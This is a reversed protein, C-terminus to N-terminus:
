APRPPPAAWTSRSPTPSASRTACRRPASWAPPRAPNWCASAPAAARRGVDFLGGTSQVILFNGGFGADGLHAEMETSIPAARAPRCLRQGRRDLHARVRPIGPEARAVRHRLAAPIRQEVIAKARQEHAPNRYSHLFLIAIAQVGQRSRRARASDAGAGRRAPDAGHGARGDAGHDRLAPRPRDAARAERLVPQLVGAPQRPRDRLHRPLGAHDAARLARRQAGPHHQDRGHHRAPVAAGCRFRSGAKGVGNEIGTVLRQPTTLTKGLRLAGTTEDFAAVDTFTGGVDASLRIASDRLPANM